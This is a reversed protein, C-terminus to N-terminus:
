CEDDDEGSIWKEIPITEDYIALACTDCWPSIWGTSIKTAPAGCRICTKESLAEYKPIIENYIKETGGSDYWRLSGYKEKIDLIRYQDVCDHEVLEQMIEECIQEGFAKKWGFPMEDLETYSWDYEPHEEPEGPWYGEEGDLGCCDTIRKGSWRNSPILFPYKECLEKNKEKVWEPIDPMDQDATHITNEMDMYSDSM